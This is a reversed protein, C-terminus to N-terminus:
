INSNILKTRSVTLIIRKWNNAFYLTNGENDVSRVKVNRINYLVNLKLLKAGGSGNNHKRCFYYNNTEM